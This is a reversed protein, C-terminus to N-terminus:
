SVIAGKGLMMEGGTHSKSDPHVNYSADGLCKAILLNEVQLTLKMYTTGHLYRLICKLKGWDDEDPKKVWETLFAVTM